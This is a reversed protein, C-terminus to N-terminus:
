IDGARAKDRGARDTIAVSREPPFRVIAKTGIDVESEITIAGGHAEVLGKVIPLGLGTGREHAAAIDHRGQGFSEFIRTMDAPNIGAGTDEVAVITSGGAERYARVRVEGQAATFKVANTLLNVLIQQLAREDAVVRISADSESVLRICKAAARAKVLGMAADIQASLELHADVLDLKGAEIRSLDLIDDILSLLRRGSAHIDAAYGANREVSDGFLRSFIIESFGLIANLPTRLEHSMNALFRSKTVNASVAATRAEELAIHQTELARINQQLEATREDVAAELQTNVSALEASRMALMEFADRSRATLSGSLCVFFAISGFTMGNSGVVLLDHAIAISVFILGALALGAGKERQWAARVIASALYLIIAGSLIEVAEFAREGAVVGGVLAVGAASVCLVTAGLGIKSSLYRQFSLGLSWYAAPLCLSTM